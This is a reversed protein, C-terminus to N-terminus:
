RSYRRVYKTAANAVKKAAAKEPAWLQQRYERVSMGSVRAGYREAASSAKSILMLGGAGSAMLLRDM